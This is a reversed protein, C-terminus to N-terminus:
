GQLKDRKAKTTKFPNEHKTIRCCPFKNIYVGNLRMQSPCAISDIKKDGMYISFIMELLSVEGTHPNDYTYIANVIPLNEKIPLTDSFGYASVTVGEIIESIWTHNGAVCTDASSDILLECGTILENDTLHGMVIESIRENPKFNLIYRM